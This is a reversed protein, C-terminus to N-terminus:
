PAEVKFWLRATSKAQGAGGEDRLIKVIEEAKFPVQLMVADSAGDEDWVTLTLDAGATLALVCAHNWAPADSSDVVATQCQLKDSGGALAVSITAYPDPGSGDGDWPKGDDGFSNFDTAKELVIRYTRPLAAGCSRASVGACVQGAPCDAQVACPTGSATAGPSGSDCGGALALLATTLLATLGATGRGQLHGPAAIM